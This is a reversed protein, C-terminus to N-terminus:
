EAMKESECTESEELHYMREESIFHMQATAVVKQYAECRRQIQSSM